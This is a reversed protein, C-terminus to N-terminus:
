IELFHKSDLDYCGKLCDYVAQYREPSSFKAPDLHSESTMSAQMGKILSAFKANPVNIKAAYASILAEKEAKQRAEKAYDSRVMAKAYEPADNGVTAAIVEDVTASKADILAQAFEKRWFESKLNNAAWTAYDRDAIAVEKATQGSYKGFTIQKSM